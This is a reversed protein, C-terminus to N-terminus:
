RGLRENGDIFDNFATQQQATIGEPKVHYTAGVYAGAMFILQIAFITCIITKLREM